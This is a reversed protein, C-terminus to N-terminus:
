IDFLINAEWWPGNRKIYFGHRTIGKIEKCIDHRSMDLKEGKLLAQINLFKPNRASFNEKEIQFASFIRRENEIIFLIEKLWMLFLEEFTEARLTLPVSEVPQIKSPDYIQSVMGMAAEEFLEKLTHAWVKIGVDATHEIIKFGSSM